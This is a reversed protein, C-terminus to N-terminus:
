KGGVSRSDLNAGILKGNLGKAIYPSDGRLRYDGTEANTFGVQKISAPFFNKSRGTSSAGVIVNFGVDGGPFFKNITAQGPATSDGAFGYENHFVINNRFIFNKVPADYANSINGTQIITNNEIILGDWASSKMFNGSGGWKQGDIDAFINNKIILRRGGRGEPGYVSVANGSGRVINNTFEIDEIVVNKGSDERTTFLIATGDQGLAWNNTMLNNEVKIRRGHKIEFLNKVLWGEERWKVPKNLHNGRVICDTPTLRLYSEAGGFLVNEAAGELYNNVIEVPGDTAWAAIAQSEEGKRKIDSIYSNAIKIFQGNAAIGRRQGLAPDGHVYVRDFEIHHPLDEIRKEETSGLQIINGVGERTAGFEVGVFRFHHAGSAANIVPENTPSVLKPLVAAYKAPDIRTDAPPLKSDAASTRVTIFESGAKLPLVLSGRFTAGAQLFITDGAKARNLAAQVDGGAKVLITNGAMELAAESRYNRYSHVGFFGIPVATAILAAIVFLFKFSSEGKAKKFERLSKEREKQKRAWIKSNVANM